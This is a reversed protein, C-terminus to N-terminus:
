AAPGRQAPEGASTTVAGGTGDLLSWTKLPTAADDDYLIVTGPDGTSEVMRNTIFKRSLTLDYLATGATGGESTAWVGAPIGAIQGHLSHLDDQGPTFGTGQIATIGAQANSVATSLGTQASATALGSQIATVASSSLASSTIAGAAFASSTLAGSAFASAALAGSAFASSTLAGSAVAGSTIAGAALNMADGPQSRSSVAANLNSTITDVLSVRLEGTQLANAANTGGQQSVYVKYKDNANPSVFSGTNLSYSYVGPLRTADVETMTAYLTAPTATFTNNSFDLLKGDSDRVVALKINTLGTLPSGNVDVIPATRIVEVAGTAILVADSM